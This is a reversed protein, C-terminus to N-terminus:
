EAGPLRQLGASHQLGGGGLEILKNLATLDAMASTSAPPAAAAATQKTTKKSSTTTTSAAAPASEQVTKVLDGLVFGVINDSTQVHLWPASDHDLITIKTGTVLVRLIKTTPEKNPASRLNAGEIIMGFEM